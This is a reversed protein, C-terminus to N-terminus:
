PQLAGQQTLPLPKATTASGADAEADVWILRPDFSRAALMTLVVVACFALAASGPYVSMVAGGRILAVLIAVVFVDVMSWRGIFETVQYLRHQLLHGSRRPRGAVLCLWTLTLIKVIPVLLSAVFIVLAIPWSGNEWLIIVGGAITSAQTEGMSVTEMIPYTNAPIYLIAATVLLAWTWQLSPRHQSPIHSECRPCRPQQLTPLHLLQGCCHCSVMSQSAASRGCQAHQAAPQPEGGLTLWLADYNVSTTTRTLLLVFACFAWFSPGFAVDAMGALKILSVLAGVLFVDAMMWPEVSRIVRVLRRGGPLSRSALLGFHLYAVAFLYLSPLVFIALGVILALLPQSTGVLSLSTDSFEIENSAGSGVFSVFTFPLSAGLMVLAAVCTAAAEQLPAKQRKQLRHNCRPCRASEGPRLAPMEVVLDCEICARIRNQRRTAMARLDM